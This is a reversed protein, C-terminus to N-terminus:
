RRPPAGHDYPRRARRATRAGRHRRDVLLVSTKGENQIRAYVETHTLLELEVVEKPDAPKPAQASAITAVFAMAAPLGLMAKM